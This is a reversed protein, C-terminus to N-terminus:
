SNTPSSLRSMPMELKTANFRCSSDSTSSSIFDFRSIKKRNVVLTSTSFLIGVSALNTSVGGIDISQGM